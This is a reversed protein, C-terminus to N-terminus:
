LFSEVHVEKKGLLFEHLLHPHLFEGKIGEEVSLLVRSSQLELSHAHLAYLFVVKTELLLQVEADL